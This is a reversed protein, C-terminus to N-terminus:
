DWGWWSWLVTLVVVPAIEARLTRPGLTLRHCGAQDALALEDSAWGGEPGVCVLVDAPKPLPAAAPGFVKQAPEVCILRLAAPTGVLLEDWRVVPAVVPVVARRCQKATEIATVAPNFRDGLEM